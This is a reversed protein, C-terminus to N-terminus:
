YQHQQMQGAGAGAAAGGGMGDMGGGIGAAFVSGAASMAVAAVLLRPSTRQKM